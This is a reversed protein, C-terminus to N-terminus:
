KQSCMSKRPVSLYSRYQKSTYQYIHENLFRIAKYNQSNRYLIEVVGIYRESENGNLSKLCTICGYTTKLTFNSDTKIGSQKM